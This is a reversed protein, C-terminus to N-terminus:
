PLWIVITERKIIPIKTAHKELTFLTIKLEFGWFTHLYIYILLASVVKINKNSRWNHQVHYHIITIDELIFIMVWSLEPLSNINKFAKIYWINFLPTMSNRSVSWCKSLRAGITREYNTTFIYIEKLCKM